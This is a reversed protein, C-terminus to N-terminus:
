GPGSYEESSDPHGSRSDGEGEPSAPLLGPDLLALAEERSPPPRVRFGRWGAGAQDIRFTRAPGRATCAMRVWRAREPAGAGGPGAGGAGGCERLGRSVGERPAAISISVSATAGTVRAIGPTPSPGAPSAADRGGADRPSPASPAADTRDMRQHPPFLRPRPAGRSLVPRTNDVSGSIRLSEKTASTKASLERSSPAGGPSTVACRWFHM